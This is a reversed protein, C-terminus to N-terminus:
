QDSDFISDVIMSPHWRDISGASLLDLNLKSQKYRSKFIKEFNEIEETKGFMLVYNKIGKEIYQQDEERKIAQELQTMYAYAFITAIAPYKSPISLFEELVDKLIEIEGKAAHRNAKILIKDWKQELKKGEPTELLEENKALFDYAKSLNEEKLAEFFNYRTEIDGILEQVKKEYEKFDSLVRLYKLVTGLDNKKLYELATEYLNQAYNLMMHYDPFNKLFPFKELYVNVQKFDKSSLAVRFRNYVDSQLFLDQIDKAKESIGRYPKLIEKAQELTKPNLSLKQAEKMKQRWLDEMKQYLNSEKYVPFQNALSYALAYKGSMVLDYFKKFNEYDQLTKNIISNKSPLSQYPKLLELAESRKGIELYKKAKTLTKEWLQDLINYIETHKLVPNDHIHEEVKKFNRKHIHYKIVDINEYIDYLRVDGNECGIYLFHKKSDFMMSTITSDVKIYDRTILEYTEMDFAIVYGLKTGIFMFKGNYDSVIATVDDHIGSLRTIVSSDYLNWVIAASDKDISVLRNKSIFCLKMVPKTHGILKKNPQMMDLNYLNIKKDYSCTAVWQGTKNFSIDNITDPHPPLTFALKANNIDMVFTKGDDGCSFLYRNRPDMAICSVDGQHRTIKGVAKKTAISFLRTEKDEKVISGFAKKNTSLDVRKTTYRQHKIKAKFGEKISLKERDLFYITTNADIVALSHDDMKKIHIIPENYNKLRKVKM